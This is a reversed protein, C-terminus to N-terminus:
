RELGSRQAPQPAALPYLGFENVLHRTVPV